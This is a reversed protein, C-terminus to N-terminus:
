EDDEKPFPEQTKRGLFTDPLPQKLTERSREITERTEQAYDADTNTPRDVSRAPM